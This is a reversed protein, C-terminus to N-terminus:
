THPKAVIGPVARQQEHETNAQNLWQAAKQMTLEPERYVSYADCRVCVMM